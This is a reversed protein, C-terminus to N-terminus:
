QDTSSPVLRNGFTFPYRMESEPVKYTRGKCIAWITCADVHYSKGISFLTEGRARRTKIDEIQADSMWGARRGRRVPDVEVPPRRRVRRIVTSMVHPNLNVLRAIADYSYGQCRLDWIRNERVLSIRARNM